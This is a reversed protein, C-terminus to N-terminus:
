KPFDTSVIVDRWDTLTKLMEECVSKIGDHGDTGLTLYIPVDRGQAVGEGRTLDIIVEVGRKPDGPLVASSALPSDYTISKFQYLWDYSTGQLLRSIGGILPEYDAIRPKYQDGNDIISTRFFGPEM